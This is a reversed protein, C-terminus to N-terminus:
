AALNNAGKTERRGRSGRTGQTIHRDIVVHRIAQETQNNTPEIGAMTLFRIDRDIDEPAFPLREHRPHGQQGGITRKGKGQPTGNKKPKVIDSSPPKSSNSSDRKLRAIQDKLQQNDGQLQRIQSQLQANTQELGFVHSRLLDIELVLSSITVDKDAM